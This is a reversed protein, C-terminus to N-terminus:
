CKKFIRHANPENMLTASVTFMVDGLKSIVNKINLEGVPASLVDPLANQLANVLRTVVYACVAHDNLFLRLSACIDDVTFCNQQVLGLKDADEPIFGMKQYLNALSEFDRNVLHVVSEIIAYRQSSEVYSVMGFDLYCLKGNQM